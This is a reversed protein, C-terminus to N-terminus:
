SPIRPNSVQFVPLSHAGLSGLQWMDMHRKIKAKAEPAFSLSFKSPAGAINVGQGMSFLDEYIVACFFYCNESPLKYDPSNEKLSSLLNGLRQLVPPVTFETEVQVQSYPADFLPAVHSCIKATDGSPVPSSITKLLSANEHLRRELRLWLTNGDEPREVELLLFEHKLGNRNKCWKLRTIRSRPTSAIYSSLDGINYTAPRRWSHTFLNSRM